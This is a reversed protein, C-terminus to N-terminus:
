KRTAVEVGDGGGWGGAVMKLRGQCPPPRRRSDLVTPGILEREREGGSADLGDRAPLKDGLLPCPTTECSLLQLRQRLSGMYEHLENLELGEKTGPPSVEDPEGLWGAGGGAM